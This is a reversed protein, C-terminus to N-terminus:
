MSHVFYMIGKWAPVVGTTTCDFYRVNATLGGNRYLQTRPKQQNKEPFLYFFTTHVRKARPVNDVITSQLTLYLLSTSMRLMLCSNSNLSGPFINGAQM